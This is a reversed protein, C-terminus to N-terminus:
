SYPPLKARSLVAAGPFPRPWADRLPAAFREDPHAAVGHGSRLVATTQQGAAIQRDQYPGGAGGSTLPGELLAGCGHEYM